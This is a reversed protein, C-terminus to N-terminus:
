PIALIPWIVFHAVCMCLLCFTRFILNSNRSREAAFYLPTMKKNHILWNRLKNSSIRRCITWSKPCSHSLFQLFLPSDYASRSGMPVKIKVHHVLWWDSLPLCKKTVVLFSLWQQSEWKRYHQVLSDVVEGMREGMQEAAERLWERTESSVSISLQVRKGEQRVAPRGAGERRGGRM